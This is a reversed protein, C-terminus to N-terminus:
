FTTWRTEVLRRADTDAFPDFAVHDGHAVLDKPSKPKGRQAFYVANHV